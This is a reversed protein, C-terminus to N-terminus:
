VFNGHKDTLPAGKRPDHQFAIGRMAAETACPRSIKLEGKAYERVHQLYHAGMM